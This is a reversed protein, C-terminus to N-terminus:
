PMANNLALPQFYQISRSVSDIAQRQAVSTMKTAGEFIFSAISMPMQGRFLAITNPGPVIEPTSVLLYLGSAAVGRPAFNRCFAPIGSSLQNTPNTPLIMGCLPTSVMRSAQRKSGGSMM